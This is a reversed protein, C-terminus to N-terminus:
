NRFLADLQQTVTLITTLNKHGRLSEEIYPSIEFGYPLPQSTALHATMKPIFIWQLWEQADLMDASFPLVSQLREPTPSEAQWMGCEQMATALESILQKCRENNNM